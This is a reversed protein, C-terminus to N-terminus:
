YKVPQSPRLALFSNKAGNYIFYVSFFLPKSLFWVPFKSSFDVNEPNYCLQGLM